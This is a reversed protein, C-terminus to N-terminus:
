FNSGFLLGNGSFASFRWGSNNGGNVNGNITYAQWRAGGTATSRSITCYSVDVIGSAKSLTHSAATVSGITVLNGSTGSLSFNNFTTTTGATFLVSVPQVTNTIDNFTNSGTITLAGAGAQELTCNYTSGGGVFTKATAGTMSIKGTGTGATTTFNTPNANNFATTTSGTVVLTGGNFTLNKTGANTGFGTTSITKGNLDITGNDLGIGSVMGNSAGTLQWTPNGGGVGFRFSCNTSVGNLDILKTGSTANFRIEPYTTFTLTMTPSLIFDGYVVFSVAPRNFTGSFGTCNLSNILQGGAISTTVTDSGATIYISVSNSESALSPFITRTGTSGSYTLEIIRSGSTTQTQNGTFVTTSSGSLSIKGTGFNTTSAAGLTCTTGTLTYTSLNTTGTLSLTTFTSNGGLTLTGNNNLARTNNIVGSTTVSAGATITTIADLAAGNQTITISNYFSLAFAGFSFSAASSLSLDGSIRGVGGSLLNWPLTRTSADIGCLVPNQGTLVTINAGSNLGTDDIIVTDQPLPYNAANPTGGSTTAYANSTLWNGGGVLSWYVTKPTTPTLGTNLGIDGVSTGSWTAAGTCIVGYFDVYTLSASNATITRQTGVTNTTVTVRANPTAGTATFTGNVTQNASLNAIYYGASATATITLNNFTNAGTVNCQKLEVNYYTLGGGAFTNAGSISWSSCLITSTGANFTLGSTNGFNWVTSSNNASSFLTSSGLNITATGTGTYVFCPGAGGNLTINFNNTNFTGNIWRCANVVNQAMTIDSGLTWSSGAGNFTASGISKGNTTITKGATTGSFTFAATGAFSGTSPYTLSGFCSIGMGSTFTIAQTATVTLDNCYGGTTITGTGSSSDIIVSNQPGPAANAASGGSSTSWKTGDAWSGAGGIWYLTTTDFTIGSNNGLDFVGLPATWPSAAGTLAIDQWNTNTLTGITAVSLTRQTGAVSSGFQVRQTATTGSVSLTGNITQNASFNIGRVGATTATVSFNNFSNAGGLTATQTGGGTYSVNYFTRGGGAFTPTSNSTVLITSTGANFTLNITSTFNVATDGTLTVTSSGLNITRTNSNSSSLGSASVNFNNTTFTGATLTIGGGLTLADQLSFTTSTSTTQGLSLSWVSKGATTILVTSVSTNYLYVTGAHSVSMGSSLKFVTGYVFINSAGAALTGTFGTFDLNLCSASGSITVTVAGSAADFFVNDASTPVAAGGAGGSTTAWKTGATADWSATGGVWYRDAM